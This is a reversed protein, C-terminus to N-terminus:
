FFDRKQELHALVAGLTTLTAMRNADLDPLGPVREKLASLIEVRKISDIGLDAELEMGLELMDAPYGTKVAVVEMLAGKLDPSAAAIPVPPAVPAAVPAPKPAAVPAPTTVHAPKPAPAPAAIPAAAAAPAAKPAAVPAAIPAPPKIPAIPVPPTIPAAVPAPAAIPLPSSGSLMAVMNAQSQEVAHLFARHGELLAQQFMAHADAMQRQSEQFASAWSADVSQAQPRHNRTDHSMPSVKSPTPAPQPKLVAQPAAQPKAVPAIPAAAAPPAIPAPTTPASLSRLKNRPYPKNHNTGSLAVTPRPKKGDPRKPESVRQNHWLPELDLPVGLAALQGLARALSTLGDRTQADTAIAAHPKNALIRGVLRTLVDNPGVEVFIRAGAAWMGEIQEVFRVPQAIQDGLQAAIAAPEAPYPQATANAWVPVAPASWAMQALAEGFPAAAKAVLPSHFATAVDLRRASLRQAALREAAEDIASTPGSLVIQRPSNHNALVVPLNWHALLPELEDKSASVALMAGPPCQAAAEAMKAGRLAAVAVCTQRDMAGAAHLAIVEGFSHGACMAGQLGVARLVDLTALSTLGIAPQANQTARLAVRQAEQGQDDFAPRPWVLKHLGRGAEADWVALAQPVHMALSEGMGVYQSGQGPFLLAVLGTQPGRGAWVGAPMASLDDPRAALADLAQTLQKRLLDPGDAVVSIRWTHDHRWARQSARAAYVFGDELAAEAILARATDALGDLTDASLVFLEVPWVRLRPAKNPGTYEEIAAHFNSGGFGFSSLGARRPHDAGRVWPRARTNLYLPGSTHAIAPNPQAIKATPPLIKHHLAMVVKFLGAAGAAAKTHGIQSKVSGLACWPEADAHQDGMALTLGRAEAADGARTGTGHAEILEITTPDFGATQWARRLAIAQGESVPAYISKARGDSSTGMGQLVAYIKDGDREADELRKLAFMALGEGLMTGDSDAAFPRCDGSASLAPTKSFCMYMFIDNFTDVGGTIVVDARKLALEDMAMSIAALSSACAADIVCNTGHLDFRNAIRGAVVNGLLGPFSAEQWPVYRAAIADAVATIKATDLGQERMADEWIPRQIRNGMTHMLQQGSTVGLLVAIRERDIEGWRGGFADDLLRKAVVLSLLQSVDTAEILAPPIGYELPDFAVPKLFGGRKAYTKDPASPDADYYDEILWHTPPVDTLLDRAALIDRWFGQPDHSGPM